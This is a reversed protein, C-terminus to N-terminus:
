EADDPDAEKGLIMQAAKEAAGAASVILRKDKKLASLWGNIYAANNRFSEPTELGAHNVLFSAGLEAVLEEKSYAESGFAAIDTIRALRSAHGTSHTLEHFLTSYYESVIRYQSLKPVVVEDTSPRYFAQNSETITLKIGYRAIYDRVLSEAADDPKLASPSVPVAWRPKLGECQDLHFVNFYRLLFHTTIEGTDQDVEEWPKWFVVLRAKEGRRVYGGAQSCQKFTVYEGAKGGLLLHNLLSYPKGTAYSICGCSASWPQKWPVTGKELAAIIRDTVASFIDM